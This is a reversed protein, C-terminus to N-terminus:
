HRTEVCKFFLYDVQTMYGFLIPHGFFSFGGGVKQKPHPPVNDTVTEVVQHRLSSYKSM